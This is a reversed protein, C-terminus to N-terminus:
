YSITDIILWKTQFFVHLFYLKRTPNFPNSYFVDNSSIGSKVKMICYLSIEGKTKIKDKVKQARGTLLGIVVILGFIRLSKTLFMFHNINFQHLTYKGLLRFCYCFWCYGDLNAWIFLNLESTRKRIELFLRKMPNYILCKMLALLNKSIRSQIWSKWNYLRAGNLTPLPIRKVVM